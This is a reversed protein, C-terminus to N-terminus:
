TLCQKQAVLNVAKTLQNRYRLPLIDEENLDTDPLIKNNTCTTQIPRRGFRYHLLYADSENVINSETDWILPFHIYLEHNASKPRLWYKQRLIGNISKERWTFTSTLLPQDIVNVTTSCYPIVNIGKFILYQYNTINPISNLFETWTYYKTPIVYEDYDTFELWETNERSRYYCEHM